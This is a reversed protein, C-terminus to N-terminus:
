SSFNEKSWNLVHDVALQMESQGANFDTEAHYQETM